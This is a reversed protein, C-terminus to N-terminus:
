GSAACDACLGAVRGIGAIHAVRLPEDYLDYANACNPNGCPTARCGGGVSCVAGDTDPNGAAFGRRGCFDCRMLESDGFEVANSLAKYDIRSLTNTLAAAYDKVMRTMAMARDYLADEIPLFDCESNDGYHWTMCKFCLLAYVYADAHCDEDPACWCALHRYGAMAERADEPKVDLNGLLFDVRFKMVAERRGYEAVTYPNGWRTPRGVFLTNPPQRWGKARKRQIREVVPSPQPAPPILIERTAM